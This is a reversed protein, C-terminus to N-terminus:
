KSSGGPSPSESSNAPMDGSESGPKGRKKAAKANASNKMADTCAADNESNLAADNRKEGKRIAAQERCDRASTSAKGPGSQTMPKAPEKTADQAFAPMALTLCTGMLAPLTTKIIQM